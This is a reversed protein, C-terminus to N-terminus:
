EESEKEEEAPQSVFPLKSKWEKAREPTILRALFTYFLLIVLILFILTTLPHRVFRKFSFGLRSIRALEDKKAELSGLIKNLAIFASHWDNQLKKLHMPQKIIQALNPSQSLIDMIKGEVVFGGQLSEQLSESQRALTSKLERFKREEEEGIEKEQSLNLFVEFDQWLKIFEKVKEINKELKRNRM